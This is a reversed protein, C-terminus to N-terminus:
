ETTYRVGKFYGSVEEPTMLNVGSVDKQAAKITEDCLLIRVSNSSSGLLVELNDSIVVNSTEINDSPTYVLRLDVIRFIEKKLERLSEDVIIAVSLKFLPYPLSDTPTSM